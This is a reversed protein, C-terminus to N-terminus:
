RDQRMGRLVGAAVLDVAGPAARALLIALRYAWPVVISRRGSRYARLVARAVVEPGPMPLNNGETMDTRVFGPLVVSVRVGRGRLEQRLGQAFRLLASKSASYVASGPMAVEGAVSSVLVISGRGQGLMRPLAARVCHLAGLLNTELIEREAGPAMEAYTRGGGGVGANAVLLDLRGFQAASAEVFASVADEDRVDVARCFIGAGGGLERALDVLGPESRAALALRFGAAHLARATARGIGRSAGTVLAVPTGADM